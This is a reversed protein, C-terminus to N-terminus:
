VRALRATLKWSIWVLLCALLLWDLAFAHATQALAVADVLLRRVMSPSVPQEPGAQHVGSVVCWVMAAVSLLPGPLAIAWPFALPPPTAAEARVASMVRATFRPSPIIEPDAALVQDIEHDRM